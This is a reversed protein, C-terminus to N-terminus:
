PDSRLSDLRACAFPILMEDSSLGGHRGILKVEIDPTYHYGLTYDSLAVLLINGTRNLFRSYDKSYGFLNKKLAEEMRMVIAKGRLQQQLLQMVFDLKDERVNLFANRTGSTPPIPRGNRSVKLCEVLDDIEDLDITRDLDVTLQGHESTLFIATKSALSNDIKDLFQTQLTNALNALELDVQRTWVGFEHETADIASYYVNFFVKGKTESILKVLLNAMDELGEYGLRTSGSLSSRAYFSDSIGRPLLSFSSIGGESMYEFITKDKFLIDKPPNLSKDHDKPDVPKFPLSELVADLEPFYVYWEPLGHELPSLGSYLSNLAAATTSPFVTTIPSYFGKKIFKSFFVQKLAKKQFLNDGLGDIVFLIIKEAGLAKQYYKQPLLPKLPKVGFLSLITSPINLLSKGQYQPYVFEDM